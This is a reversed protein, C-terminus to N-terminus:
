LTDYLHVVPQNYSFSPLEGNDAQPTGDPSFFRNGPHGLFGDNPHAGGAALANLINKDVLPLLNEVFTQAEEDSTVFTLLRCFSAAPLGTPTFQDLWFQTIINYKGERSAEILCSKFAATKMLGTLGDAEVFDMRLPVFNGAEDKGHHVIYSRLQGEHNLREFTTQM